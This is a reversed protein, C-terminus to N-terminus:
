PADSEHIHDSVMKKWMKRSVSRLRVLRDDIWERLREELVVLNQAMVLKLQVIQHSSTYLALRSLNTQALQRIIQPLWFRMALLSDRTVSKFEEEDMDGSGDEDDTHTHKYPKRPSHSLISRNPSITLLQLALSGYITVCCASQTM